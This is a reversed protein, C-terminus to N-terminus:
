KSQNKQEKEKLTYTSTGTGLISEELGSGPVGLTTVLMQKQVGMSYRMGQRWYTEEDHRPNGRTNALETKSVMGILDVTGGFDETRGLPEIAKEFYAQMRDEQNYRIRLNYYGRISLEILEHVGQEIILDVDSDFRVRDFAGKLVNMLPRKLKEYVQENAQRWEYEDLFQEFEAVYKQTTGPDYEQCESILDVLKTLSHGKYDNAMTEITNTGVKLAM